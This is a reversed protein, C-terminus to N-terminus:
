FWGGLLLVDGECSLVGLCFFGDVLCQRADLPYDGPCCCFDCAAVGWWADVFAELACYSCRELLVVLVEVHVSEVFSPDFPQGVLGEWVLLTV